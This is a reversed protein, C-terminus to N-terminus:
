GVANQCMERIGAKWGVNGKSGVYMGPFRRVAEVFSDIHEIKDGYNRISDEFNEEITNNTKKSAM